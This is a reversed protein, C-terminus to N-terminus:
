DDYIPLSSSSINYVTCIHKIKVAEACNSIFKDVHASRPEYKGSEIICELWNINLSDDSLKHIENYRPLHIATYIAKNFKPNKLTCFETIRKVVASPGLSLCNEFLGSNNEVIEKGIYAELDKFYFRLEITGEYLMSTLTYKTVHIRMSSLDNDSIADRNNLRRYMQFQQAFQLIYAQREIFRGWPYCVVPLRVCPKNIINSLLHALEQWEVIDSDLQNYISEMDKGYLDRMQKSMKKVDTAESTASALIPTNKREAESEDEKHDHGDSKPNPDVDDDGDDDKPNSDVPNSNVADDDDDYESDMDDEESSSSSSSMDELLEKKRKKNLMKVYKANHPCLKSTVRSHGIRGCSSCKQNGDSDYGIRKPASMPASMSAPKPASKAPPDAKGKKSTKKIRKKKTVKPYNKPYNPEGGAVKMNMRSPQKINRGSRSTKVKGPMASRNAYAVQPSRSSSDAYVESNFGAGKLRKRAGGPKDSRTPTKFSGKRKASSSRQLKSKRLKEANAIEAKRANEAEEALSQLSDM